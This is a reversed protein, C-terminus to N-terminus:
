LQANDSPHDEQAPTVAYQWTAYGATVYHKRSISSPMSARISALTLCTPRPFM